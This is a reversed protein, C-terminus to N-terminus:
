DLRFVKDRSKHGQVLTLRTKAIGLAKSLLNIVAANAAGDAPPATVSVKITEGEMEVKNARANPSVRVTLTTGQVALDALSNKSM